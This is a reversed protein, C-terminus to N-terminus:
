QQKANYADIFMQLAASITDQFLVKEGRRGTEAYTIAQLAKLQEVPIKLTTCQLLATSEKRPRGRGRKKEGTPTAEEKPTTMKQVFDKVATQEAEAAPANGIDNLLSSFSGSFDKQKKQAM